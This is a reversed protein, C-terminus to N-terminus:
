SGATMPAILGERMALDGMKLWDLELEESPVDIPLLECFRQFALQNLEDRNQVVPPEEDRLTPDVVGAIPTEYEDDSARGPKV